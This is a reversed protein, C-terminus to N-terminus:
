PASAPRVTPPASVQGHLASVMGPAINRMVGEPLYAVPNGKKDRVSFWAGGNKDLVPRNDNGLEPKIVYEVKPNDQAAVLNKAINQAQLGTIGQNYQQLGVYLQQAQSRPTALMEQGDLDTPPTVADAGYVNKADTQIANVRSASMGKQTADIHAQVRAMADADRTRLMDFGAQIRAQSEERKAAIDETHYKGTEALAARNHAEDEMNHRITENTRKENDITEFYSKPDSQQNIMGLVGEKTIEFPTGLPKHTDQDYRQVLLRANPGDGMVRIGATTGDNVFMHMRAILQAAAQPDGLNWARYAAMANQVAGEHQVRFAYEHAHMVALPDNNNLMAAEYLAAAKDINQGPTAGPPGNQMMYTMQGNAGANAYARVLGQATMNGNWPGGVSTIPPQQATTTTTAPPPGPAPKTDPTTTVPPASTGTTTPHDQLYAGTDKEMYDHMQEYRADAEEATAYSPYKSLGDAQAHALAEQPTHTKGDWVTPVNYFKGDPGTVVAQLLTSVSGDPQMVKGPGALNDLHQKYLYQEEPTLKLDKSADDLNTTPVPTPAAPPTVPARVASADSTIAPAPLSPPTIPPQAQGGAVLTPQPAGPAPTPAGPPAPPLAAPKFDAPPQSVTPQVNEYPNYPKTATNFDRWTQPDLLVKGIPRDWGTPAPPQEPADWLPAGRERSQGTNVRSPLAELGGTDQLAEAYGPPPTPPTGPPNRGVVKNVFDFTGEPAVVQHEDPHRRQMNEVTKDGAYYAAFVDATGRGYKQSLDKYKEAGIWLNQLPDDPDVKGSPAYKKLDEPTLGMYGVRNGNKANPNNDSNAYVLAALDARPIGVDDAVHNVAQYLAPDSQELSKYRDFPVELRPTHDVYDNTGIAGSSGGASGMIRQVTQAPPPTAFADPAPPPAEPTPPAPAPAPSAAPTTDPADATEPPALAALPTPPPATDPTPPPSSLAGGIAMNGTAPDPTPYQFELGNDDLPPM